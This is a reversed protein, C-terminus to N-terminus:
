VCNESGTQVTGFRPVEKKSLIFPFGRNAFGAFKHYSSGRSCAYPVKQLVSAKKM